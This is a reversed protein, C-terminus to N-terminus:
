VLPYIGAANGGGWNGSTYWPPPYAFVQGNSNVKSKWNDSLVFFSKPSVPRFGEPISTSLALTSTSSTTPVYIAIAGTTYDIRRVRVEAGTVDVPVDQWDTAGTLTDIKSKPIRAGVLNRPGASVVATGNTWTIIGVLTSNPFPTQADITQGVQGPKIILSADDSPWVAEATDHVEVLIQDIRTGSSPGPNTVLVSESTGLGSVVYPGRSLNSDCWVVARGAAVTVSSGSLTCDFGEVVGGWKDPELEFIAALLQSDMFATYGAAGTGASDEGVNQLWNVVFELSM